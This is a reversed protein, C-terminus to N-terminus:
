AEIEKMEQVVHLAMTMLQEVVEPKVPRDKDEDDYRRYDDDRLRELTDCGSCSGYRVFVTWYKDPQYSNEAIVFLQTGQYDGDDIVHIKSPDPQGYDEGAEDVALVRVVSTVIDKYSEPVAKSFAEQLTPKAAMFRNVFEQIM